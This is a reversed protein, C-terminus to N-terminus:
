DIGQLALLLKDDFLYNVALSSLAMEFHESLNAKEAFRKAKLAYPM